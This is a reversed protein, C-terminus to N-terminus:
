RMEEIFCLMEPFGVHMYSEDVLRRVSFLPKGRFNENWCLQPQIEMFLIGFPDPSLNMLIIPLNIVSLFELYSIINHLIVSSIYFIMESHINVLNPSHMAQACGTNRPLSCM